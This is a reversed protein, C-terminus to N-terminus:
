GRFLTRARNIEKIFFPLFFKKYVVYLSLPVGDLCQALNEGSNRNFLELAGNRPFAFHLCAKEQSVVFLLLQIAGGAFM